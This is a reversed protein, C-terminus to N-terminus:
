FIFDELPHKIDLVHEGFDVLLLPRFRKLVVRNRWHEFSGLFFGTRSTVAGLFGGPVLLEQGRNVFAQYVESPNDPYNAEMYAESNVSPKGFPPNMVIADFRLKM